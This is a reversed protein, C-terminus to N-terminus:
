KHFKSKPEPFIARPKDYVPMKLAAALSEVTPGPDYAGLVLVDLGPKENAEIIERAREVSHGTGVIIVKIKDSM